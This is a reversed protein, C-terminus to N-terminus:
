TTPLQNNSAAPIILLSTDDRNVGQQHRLNAGHQRDDVLDTTQSIEHDAYSLNIHMIHM